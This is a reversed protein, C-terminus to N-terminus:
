LGEAFGMFRWLVWLCVCGCVRLFRVFVWLVYVCLWLCVFLMFVRVGGSVGFKCMCVDCMLMGGCVGVYDWLSGRVTYVRVYVYTTCM